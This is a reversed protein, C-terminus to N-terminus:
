VLPFEHPAWVLMSELFRYYCRERFMEVFTFANYRNIVDCKGDKVTAIGFADAQTWINLCLVSPLFLLHTNM